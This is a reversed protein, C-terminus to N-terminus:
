YPARLRQNSLPVRRPRCSAGRRTNRAMPHRVSGDSPDTGAIRPLLHGCDALPAQGSLCICRISLRSCYVTKPRKM